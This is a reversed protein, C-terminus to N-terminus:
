DDAHAEYCLLAMRDRFDEIARQQVAPTSHRPRSYAERTMLQGLRNESLLEMLETLPVGAQHASMIQEALLAQM